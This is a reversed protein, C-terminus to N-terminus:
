NGVRKSGRQTNDLLTLYVCISTYLSV